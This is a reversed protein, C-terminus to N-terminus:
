FFGTHGDHQSQTHLKDLSLQCNESQLQLRKGVDRTERLHRTLAGNYDIHKSKRDSPPPRTSYHSIQKQFRDTIQPHVDNRLTSIHADLTVLSDTHLSLLQPGKEHYQATVCLAIPGTQARAAPSYFSNAIIWNQEKGQADRCLAINKRFVLM